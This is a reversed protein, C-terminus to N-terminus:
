SCFRIHLGNNVWATKQGKTDLIAMTSLTAKKECSKYMCVHLSEFRSEVKRRSKMKVIGGERCMKIVLGRNGKRLQM